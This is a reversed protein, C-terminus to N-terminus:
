SSPSSSPEIPEGAADDKKGEMRVCARCLMTEGEDLPEGGLRGLQITSNCKCCQCTLPPATTARPPSAPINSGPERYPYEDPPAKDWSVAREEEKEEDDKKKLDKM